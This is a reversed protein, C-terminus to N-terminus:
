RWASMVEESAQDDLPQSETMIVTNEIVAEVENAPMANLQNGMAPDLRNSGLAQLLDMAWAAKKKGKLLGKIIPFCGDDAGPDSGDPCKPLPGFDDDGGSTTPDLDIVCGGDVPSPKTGEPCIVTWGDSTPVAGVVSIKPVCRDDAGREEGPPCGDNSQSTIGFSQFLKVCIGLTNPRTGPPCPKGPQRLDSSDGGSNDGNGEENKLCINIQERCKEECSDYDDQVSQPSDHRIDDYQSQNRVSDLTSQYGADALARCNGHQAQANGDAFFKFMEAGFICRNPTPSVRRCEFKATEYNIKINKLARDREADCRRYDVQRKAEAGERAKSVESERKVFLFNKHKRTKECPEICALFQDHCQQNNQGSVTTVPVVFLAFVAVVLAPSVVGGVRINM